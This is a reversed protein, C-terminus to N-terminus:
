HSEKGSVVILHFVEFLFLEKSIVGM